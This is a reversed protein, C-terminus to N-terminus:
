GHFNFFTLTSFFKRRKKPSFPFRTQRMIASIALDKKFFKMIGTAEYTKVGSRSFDLLYFYSM